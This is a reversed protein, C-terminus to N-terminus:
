TPGASSISKRSLTHLSVRVCPRYGLFGVKCTYSDLISLDVFRAARLCTNKLRTDVVFAAMNLEKPWVDDLARRLQPQAFWYIGGGDM